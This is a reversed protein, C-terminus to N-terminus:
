RVVFGQETPWAGQMALACGLMPLVETLILEDLTNEELDQIGYLMAVAQPDVVPVQLWFVNEHRVM